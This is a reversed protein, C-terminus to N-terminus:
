RTAERPIVQLTLVSTPPVLVTGVVDPERSAMSTFVDRLRLWRWSWRTTGRMSSGDVLSVIVTRGPLM